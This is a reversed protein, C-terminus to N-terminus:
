DHRRPDRFAQYHTARWHEFDEEYFCWEAIAAKYNGEAKWAHLRGRKIANRITRDSRGGHGNDQLGMRRVAEGLRLITRARLRTQRPPPHAQRAALHEQQATQRLTAMRDCYEASPSTQGSEWRKITLVHVELRAALAKQTLHLATRIAKVNVTSMEGKGRTTAHGQAPGQPRGRNTEPRRGGVS